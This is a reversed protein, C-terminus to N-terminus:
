SVKWIDLIIPVKLNLPTFHPLYTQPRTTVAFSEEFDASHPNKIEM